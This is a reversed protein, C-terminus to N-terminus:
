REPQIQWAGETRGHDTQADYSRDRAKIDAIVEGIISEARKSQLKGFRQAAVQVKTVIQPAMQEVHRVHNLEHRRTREVFGNWAAKLEPSLAEITEAQPLLISAECNVQVSEPNISGDDMRKWKWQVKWETYAFRAAGTEDRPGKEVLSRKLEESTTGAVPYFSYTPIVTCSEAWTPTVWLLGLLLATFAWARLM